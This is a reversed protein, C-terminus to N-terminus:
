QRGHHLEKFITQLQSKTLQGPASQAEIDPPAFIMENGWLTGFIRTAYGHEGMGLIIVKKGQNKLQQQLSLLRLADSPTHCKTALKYITPNYTAMTTIITQLEDSSPTEQYNHYSAIVNKNDRTAELEPQQSSIDLDILTSSESALRIYHLRQEVTLNMPELNQRRFVLLLQAGNKQILQALNEDNLDELYDLWVEFYRYDSEHKKIAAITNNITPAIIPLCYNPTM